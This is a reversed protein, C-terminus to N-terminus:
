FPNPLVSPDPAFSDGLHIQAARMLGDCETFNVQGVEVQTSYNIYRWVQDKLADDVNDKDLIAEVTKGLTEVDNDQVSWYKDRCQTATIYYAFGLSLRIKVARLDEPDKQLQERFKSVYERPDQISELNAMAGEAYSRRADEVCNMMESGVASSNQMPILGLSKEEHLMELEGYSGSVFRDLEQHGLYDTLEAQYAEEGNWDATLTITQGSGDYNGPHVLKLVLPGDAESPDPFGSLLLKFKGDYGLFLRYPKDEPKWGIYCSIQGSDDYREASWELDYAVVEAKSPSSSALAFGIISVFRLLHM